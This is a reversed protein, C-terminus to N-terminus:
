RPSLETRKMRAARWLLRPLDWSRLRPRTHWTRHQLADARDLILLGGQVVLRLEWGIRGPLQLALPAGAMMLTRAQECLEAILAQAAPDSAVTPGIASVNVGHALLRDTPLYHRQRPLDVSLDQWFNILQLASCIQDSRQLSVSDTVGYLHLLLRGVPNASLRCYDLLEAQDRYRRGAATYRVDQEFASILDHLLPLPLQHQAIMAALPAFVAHWRDGHYGHAEACAVLAHRYDQLAQLRQEATADGEDAMDDACRAFHYIALIAPRLAKPCLWSAVPFNEYHQTGQHGLGAVAPSTTTPHHPRPM